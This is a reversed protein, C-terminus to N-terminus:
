RLGCEEQARLWRGVGIGSLAGSIRVGIRSGGGLERCFACVPNGHLPSKVRAAAPIWRIRHWGTAVIADCGRITALKVVGGAGVNAIGRSKILKPTVVEISTM